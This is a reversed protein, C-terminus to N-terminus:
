IGLPKGLAAGLEAIERHEELTDAEAGVNWCVFGDGVDEQRQLSGDLPLRGLRSGGPRRGVLRM